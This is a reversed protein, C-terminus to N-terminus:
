RNAVPRTPPSVPLKDWCCRETRSFRWRRHATTLPVKYVSGLASDLKELFGDGAVYVDGAADVGIGRAAGALDLWGTREGQPNVRAVFGAAGIKGAAYISGDQGAAMARVTDSKNQGLALQRGGTKSISPGAGGTNVNGALDITVADGKTYSAVEQTFAPLVLVLTSLVILAKSAFRM